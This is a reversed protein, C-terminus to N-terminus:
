ESGTSLTLEVTFTATGLPTSQEPDVVFTLPSEPAPISPDALNDVSVADVSDVQIQDPLQISVEDERGDPSLDKVGFTLTHSSGDSQVTPPDLSVNTVQVRESLTGQMSGPHNTCVYTDLEAGLADTLVFGLEDGSDIWEVATTDEFSGTTNQSLVAEGATNRLELPHSPWGNNKIWYRQGAELFVGPNQTNVEATANSGEITTIEWASANVNNMTLTTDAGAKSAWYDTHGLTGLRARSGESSGSIDARIAYVSATLDGFFVVGDSVTPSVINSGARYSWQLDGTAADVAYLKGVNGGVLVTGDAVTPSSGKFRDEVSYSWAETGTSANIGYLQGDESGVIVTGNHVTPSSRIEGGTEFTWDKTGTTADVAYVNSDVSGVYVTGDVVTPSSESTGGTKYSWEKTGTDADVAYLRGGGYDWSVVYVTGDVVTPATYVDNDAKFAWQKDGTEADVAYLNFDASGVFVTGDVFTPSSLIQGDTEFIWIETGTEADLAYVTGRLDGIFVTENVVQPAADIGNDVAFEWQKDGTTADLAYLKNTTETYSSSGGIFVTGDVVTPPASFSPTLDTKWKERDDSQALASKGAVTATLGVGAATKLVSRRTSAPRYRREDAM